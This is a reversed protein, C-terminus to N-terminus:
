DGFNTILDVEAGGAALPTVMVYYAAGDRGRAGGLGHEAGDKVHEASFGSRTARTYYYDLLRQPAAESIFSVVRLVCGAADNGAAENVQGRPYIPFEAPVRAAWAMSYNLQGRCARPRASGPTQAQSVALQALTQPADIAANRPAPASLLQGSDGAVSRSSAITADTNAPLSTNPVPATQPRDAARAAAQSGQGSLSPDVMIQDSLAQTLAPDANAIANGTQNAAALLAGDIKDADNGGCAAIISASSLILLSRHVAMM